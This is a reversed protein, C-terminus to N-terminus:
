NVKKDFCDCRHTGVYGTDNCKSCAYVPSLDRLSLNITKLMEEATSILQKQETELKLLLENNGAIQAFALDKEMGNIKSYIDSFGSLTTAKETNKQARSLALARRRSYERNYSEQTTETPKSTNEIDSVNFVGNNKWSSLIANMYAIPSNKGAALKASELIMDESLNWSKWTNVNERDWQNPRRNIGAITLLRGIFEDTKKRNEFYDGVSSLDIVGREHFQEVLSDM